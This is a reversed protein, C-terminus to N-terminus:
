GDIKKIKRYSGTQNSDIVGKDLAYKKLVPVSDIDPTVSHSLLMVKPNNKIQDQLWVM